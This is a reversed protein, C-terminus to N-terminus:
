DGARKNLAHMDAVTIDSILDQDLRTRTGASCLLDRLAKAEDRTIRRRKKYYPGAIAGSMALLRIFREDLRRKLM